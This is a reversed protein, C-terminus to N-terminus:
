LLAEFRKDKSSPPFLSLSFLFPSPLSLPALKRLAESEGPMRKSDIGDDIVEISLFFFFLVFSGAMQDHVDSHDQLPFPSFFFPPFPFAATSQEFEHMTFLPFPPFFFFPPPLVAPSSNSRSGRKADGKLFFPPPFFLPLSVSTMSRPNKECELFFPPPFFFFFIQVQAM